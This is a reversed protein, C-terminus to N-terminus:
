KKKAKKAKKGYSPKKVKKAKKAKKMKRTAELVVAHERKSHSSRSLCYFRADLTPIILM